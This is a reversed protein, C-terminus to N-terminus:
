MSRELSKNHYGSMEDIIFPPYEKGIKRGEIIIESKSGM